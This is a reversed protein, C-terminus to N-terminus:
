ISQQQSILHMIVDMSEKVPLYYDLGMSVNCGQETDITIPSIDYIKSVAVCISMGTKLTM